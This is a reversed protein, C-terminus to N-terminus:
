ETTTLLPPQADAGELVIVTVTFGNGEVGVIVGDPGVLKQAPPLTFRVDDAVEPLTQVGPPAVVWVMVAVM